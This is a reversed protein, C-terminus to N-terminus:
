PLNLPPRRKFEYGHLYAGLDAMEAGTFRPWAIKKQRMAEGMAPGHKWLAAMLDYSTMSGAMESRSPIQGSPNEHCTVCRRKRFLLEGSAADGHENLFQISLLYGALRHMEETSIPPTDSLAPRPHNWLAAALDNLTYRTPRGELAEGGQHCAVCRKTAFLKRGEEPSGPVFAASDSRGVGSRLYALMDTLGQATQRPLVENGPHRVMRLALLVPHDLSQWSQVPELDKRVGHCQECNDSRFVREGRRADGPREFDRMSYFYVFLDAAQQRSLEPFAIRNQKLAKWMAPAHNWLNAAMESPTFGREVMEALDPGITGGERNVSHCAVCRQSLFAERGRKADGLPLQRTMGTATSALALLSTLSAIRIM